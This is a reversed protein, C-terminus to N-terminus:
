ILEYPKYRKMIAQATHIGDLSASTIGGAYGAGEGCPYILDEGLALRAENRLIRIPSSTRTEAGTLVASDSAFGKLKKDFSLLGNRLSECVFSPLFDDLKSLTCGKGDMYTPMVATPESGFKSNLFDGVTCIPANYNNGGSSFAAREIKRQFEIAKMPTNGYDERFVSVAVASNSNMGDRAHNSMGNVVVGGNESAAAVVQGGPCMCFTYVGRKDTDASLSYEASSLAPHSAYDGYMAEDINKRLHEIRVGVSFPKAELSFGSSILTGYTDRASHGIALVLPGCSIDGKNTKVFLSGDSLKKVGEFCTHYLVEGGLAVVKNLIKDVIGQLYDTGIHPKALYRISEPAGFEIFREIVYASYPDNIRTVLKGDSFTGAGGAGFQINSNEDLIRSSSFGEIQMARESVSAGREILIPKYGNEALLLAAYMGAPGSGVILPRAKLEESGYEILPKQESLLSLGNQKLKDEESETWNGSIAVAYVLKIADKKRADVSRRYIFFETEKSFLNLAKIKKKAFSIAAESSKDLSLKIEKLIYTKRKM